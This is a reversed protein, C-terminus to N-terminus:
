WPARRDVVRVDGYYYVHIETTCAAQKELYESVWVILWEKAM